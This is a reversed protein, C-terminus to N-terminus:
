AEFMHNDEVRNPVLRISRMKINNKIHNCMRNFDIEKDEGYRTERHYKINYYNIGYISGKTHPEFITEGTEHELPKKKIGWSKQIMGWEPHEEETYKKYDWRDYIAFMKTVRKIHLVSNNHESFLFMGPKLKGDDEKVIVMFNNSTIDKGYCKM